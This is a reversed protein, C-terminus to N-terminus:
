RDTESVANPTDSQNTSEQGIEYSGYDITLRATGGIRVKTESDSRQPLWFNGIKLNSFRIMTRSIWFSPNKAPSAEFKVLAFDNADVWIKGRYLFKSEKIPDVQLIYAPRGNVSANGLLEFNYNAQTLATTEPKRSAEVESDVARKLVKERLLKSGSQSVIHFSKGSSADYNVEVAMKAEITTGYGHYEAEYHRVTHYHKLADKQSKNHRQMQELIQEISLDAPAAPQAAATALATSIALVVTCVVSKKRQLLM